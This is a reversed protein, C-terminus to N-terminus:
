QIFYEFWHQTLRFVQVQGLVRLLICVVLKLFEMSHEDAEWHSCLAYRRATTSLLQQGLVDCVEWYQPSEDPLYNYGEIITRLCPMYPFQFLPFRYPFLASFLPFSFAFAIVGLVQCLRLSKGLEASMQLDESTVAAISSFATLNWKLQLQM